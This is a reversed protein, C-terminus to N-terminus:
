SRQVRAYVDATERVCKEWSFMKVREFGKEVLSERVSRGALLTELHSCLTKDDGKEFYLAADGAVEPFCSSNLLVAPCGAALADLIPIGFGEYLSPYVFAVAGAFLAPMQADPVFGQSVVDRINLNDLLELEMKNFPVGTCFLHLGPHSKLVPAVAAAFWNFNKYGGRKGVYLLYPWPMSLPEQPVTENPAIYGHYVVTIKKEPVDYRSILDRRTHESVAIIHSAASLVQRRCHAVRSNGCLSDPILDHVTVVIPKRGLVIRWDDRVWHPGTMHFVDFDDKELAARVSRLNALEGSPFTHPLLRALLRYVRSVGTFYRGFCYKSVFDDINQRHPPLNFPPQQLFVNDSSILPLRYEFDSPLRKMVETFYRSVGGHHEFFGQDDYLIRIMRIQTEKKM